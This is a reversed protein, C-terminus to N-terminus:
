SGLRNILDALAQFQEGLEKGLQDHDPLTDTQESVNMNVHISDPRSEFRVALTKPQRNFKLVTLSSSIPPDIDEALAPNLLKSGIWQDPNERAVEVIFNLGYSLIPPNSLM